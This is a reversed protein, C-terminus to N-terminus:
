DPRVPRFLLGLRTWVLPGGGLLDVHVAQQGAGGVPNDGALPMGALRAPAVGLKGLKRAHAIGGAQRTPFFLAARFFAIGGRRQQPSPAPFDPKLPSWSSSM